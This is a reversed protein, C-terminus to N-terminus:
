GTRAARRVLSGAADSGAKQSAAQREVASGRMGMWSIAHRGMVAESIAGFIVGLVIACLVVVVTYGVARDKPSKMLIPLGLYLLYLAYLAAVVGLLSLVPMVGLIGALWAPTYSYAAVKLAQRQNKEGSFTPALADIILALVFVGVLALIFAVIAYSVSSLIPTRITGLFPVDIGVLSMGIISAIPGIAALPVIYGTYLTRTSTAEAAIAPWETNPRLLINRAREILGPFQKTIDVWAASAAAGTGAAADSFAAGTASSPKDTGASLAAGCNACFRTGDPNPHNCAPCNM